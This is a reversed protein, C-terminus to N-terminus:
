KRVTEMAEHAAKEELLPDQGEGDEEGGHHSDIGPVELWGWSGSVRLLCVREPKLSLVKITAPGGRAKRSTPCHIGLLCRSGSWPLRTVHGQPVAHRTCNVLLHLERGLLTSTWGSASSPWASLNRYFNGSNNIGECCLGVVKGGLLIQKTVTAALSGLFHRCGKLVLVQRGRGDKTDGQFATRV